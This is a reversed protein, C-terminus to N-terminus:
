RKNVAVEPLEAIKAVEIMWAMLEEFPISNPDPGKYTKIPGGDVKKVAMVLEESVVDNWIRWELASQLLFIFDEKGVRETGDYEEGPQGSKINVVEEIKKRPLKRRNSM